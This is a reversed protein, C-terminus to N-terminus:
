RAYGCVLPPALCHARQELMQHAAIGAQDQQKCRGEVARQGVRAVDLAIDGAHAFIAALVGMGRDPRTHGEGFHAVASPGPLQEVHDIRDAMAEGVGYLGVLDLGIHQRGIDVRHGRM